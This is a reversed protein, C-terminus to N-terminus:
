AKEIAKLYEKIRKLIGDLYFKEIKEEFIKELPSFESIRYTNKIKEILFIDRLRKLQRRVNSDALGKIDLNLSIRLKESEDKIEQLSLSKRSQKNKILILFIDVIIDIGDGPQLLSLSLFLKKTLERESQTSSPEEYKRLTIESIPLDKM